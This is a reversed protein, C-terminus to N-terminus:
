LGEDLTNLAEAVAIGAPGYELEEAANAPSHAEHDHGPTLTVHDASIEAVKWTRDGILLKEGTRCRLVEVPMTSTDVPVPKEPLDLRDRRRNAEEVEELNARILDGAMRDPEAEPNHLQFVATGDDASVDTLTLTLHRTQSLTHPLAKVDGRRFVLDEGEDHAM